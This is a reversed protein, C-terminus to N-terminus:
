RRSCVNMPKTDRRALVCEFLLAELGKVVISRCMKVAAATGVKGSMVEFRMGFPSLLEAFAAAETGGLLMPVRHAHPPVASM